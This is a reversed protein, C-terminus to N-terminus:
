LLVQDNDHTLSEAHLHNHSWYLNGARCRYVCAAAAPLAPHVQLEAPSPNPSHFTARFEGWADVADQPPGRAVAAWHGRALQQVYFAWRHWTMGSHCTNDLMDGTSGVSPVHPSDAHECRSGHAARRLGTHGAMCRSAHCSDQALVLLASSSVSLHLAATASPSVCSVRTWCHHLRRQRSSMAAGCAHHLMAALHWAPTLVPWADLSM